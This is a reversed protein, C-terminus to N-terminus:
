PAQPAGRMGSAWPAQWPNQCLAIRPYKRSETSNRLTEVPNESSFTSHICFGHLAKHSCRGGQRNCTHQHTYADDKSM